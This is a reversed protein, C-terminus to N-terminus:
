HFVTANEQEATENECGRAMKEPLDRGLRGGRRNAERRLAVRAQRRGIEDAERARLDSYVRGIMGTVRGVCLDEILADRHGVKERQDARREAGRQATAGDRRIDKDLSSVAVADYERELFGARSGRGPKHERIASIPLRQRRV